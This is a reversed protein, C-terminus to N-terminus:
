LFLPTRSSCDTPQTLAIDSPFKLKHASFFILTTRPMISLGLIGRGVQIIAQYERRGEPSLLEGETYGSGEKRLASLFAPNISSVVLRISPSRTDILGLDQM